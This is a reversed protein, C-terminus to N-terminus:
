GKPDLRLLRFSHGGVECTLTGQEFSVPRQWVPDSVACDGGLNLKVEAQQTERAMNVLCLLYRSGARWASVKTTEPAAAVLEDNNWYGIFEADRCPLADQAAWVKYVLDVHVYGAWINTDHLLTLALVSETQRTDSDRLRNFDMRGFSPLFQPVLGYNRGMFQARFEDLSVTDLYDDKVLASFQEGELYLDCFALTPPTLAGSMHNVLLLPRGKRQFVSYLRKFMERTAFIAYKPQWVGDEDRYGCGHHFNRCPPPRTIDFYLGDLKTDDMLRDVGWVLFDAWASNPCVFQMPRPPDQEAATALPLVEWEKGYAQFEPSLSGVCTGDIYPTIYPLGKAHWEDCFRNIAEPDKPIPYGPEKSWSSWFAVLINGPLVEPWHALRRTRWDEPLPKLPTAQLGFEFRLPQDITTPRDVFTVQLERAGGATVIRIAEEPRALRWNEPGECFWDLGRDEDGIWVFPVFGSTVPEDTLAGARARGSLPCSHMGYLRAVERRLPVTLVLHELTPAPLDAPALEVQVRAMGDYELLTHAFARLGGGDAGTAILARDPDTADYQFSAPGAPDPRDRVTWDLRIPQALLEEHASVISAPLLTERWAYTRGWCRVASPEFGLETWPKLVEHEKGLDNKWWVPREPVTFSGARSAVAKGQAILSVEVRHEGATPDRLPATVETEPSALTTEIPPQRDISVGVGLREGPPLPFPLSSAMLAGRADITVGLEEAQLYPALAIRLPDPAPFREGRHLGAVEDPLLCRRYITFGDLVMDAKGTIYSWGANTGVRFTEALGSPLVVNDTVCEALVGDRYLCIEGKRWTGVLHHWEGDKWDGADSNACSLQKEPGLVYLKNRHEAYYIYLLLRGGPGWSDFWIHFLSDSGSWGVPKVWLSVSGEAPNLNRATQYELATGDAGCLLAQGQKGEVFQLEGTVRAAPDGAARAANLQGDYPAYFLVDQETLAHAGVPLLLMGLALTAAM